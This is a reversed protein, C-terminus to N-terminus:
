GKKNRKRPSIAIYPSRDEDFHGNYVGSKNNGLACYFDESVYIDERKHKGSLLECKYAKTGDDMVCEKSACGCDKCAVTVVPECHKASM